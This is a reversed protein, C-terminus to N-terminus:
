RKTHGPWDCCATSKAGQRKEPPQTRKQPGIVAEWARMGDLANSTDALLWTARECSAWAKQALRKAIGGKNGAAWSYRLLALGLQEAHLSGRRLGREDFLEEALEIQRATMALLREWDSQMLLRTNFSQLAHYILARPAISDLPKDHEASEIMSEMLAEKEEWYSETPQGVVWGVLSARQGFNVHTVRHM